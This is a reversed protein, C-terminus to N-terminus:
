KPRIKDIAEVTIQDWYFMVLTSYIHLLAFLTTLFVKNLRKFVFVSMPFDSGWVTVSKTLEGLIVFGFCITRSFEKIYGRLYNQISKAPNENTTRVANFFMWVILAAIYIKLFQTGM